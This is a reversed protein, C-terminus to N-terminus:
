ADDSATRAAIAPVSMTRVVPEWVAVAAVYAVSRPLTWSPVIGRDVSAADYARIRASFPWMVAGTASEVGGATVMGRVASTAPVFSPEDDTATRVVADVESPQPIAPRVSSRRRLSPANAASASGAPVEIEFTSGRAM